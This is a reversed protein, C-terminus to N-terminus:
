IYDKGTPPRKKEDLESIPFLTQIVTNRSNCMSKKLDPYLLDRNKDLFSKTGCAGTSYVVDGAYHNIYFDEAQLQKKWKSDATQYTAFHPHKNLVDSLKDLFTLDSSDGPRFFM